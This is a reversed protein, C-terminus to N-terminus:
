APAEPLRTLITSIAGSPQWGAFQADHSTFLKSRLFVRVPNGHDDLDVGLLDALIPDSRDSCRITVMGADTGFEVRIHVTARQHM